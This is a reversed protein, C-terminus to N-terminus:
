LLPLQSIMSKLPKTSMRTNHSRCLCFINARTTNGGKSVPNDHALSLSGKCTNDAFFCGKELIEQIDQDTLDAVVRAMHARRVARSNAFRAPHKIYKRHSMEKVKEPNDSQWKKINAIVRTKNKKYWNAFTKKVREPNSERYQKVTEKIREKNEQYHKKDYDKNAERWKLNARIAAPTKPMHYM